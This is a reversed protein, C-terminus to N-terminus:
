VDGLSSSGGSSPLEVPTGRASTKPRALRGGLMSFGPGGPSLKAPPRHDSTPKQTYIHPTRLPLPEYRLPAVVHPKPRPEEPPELVPALPELSATPRPPPEPAITIARPAEPTTVPKSRTLGARHVRGMVAGRTMGLRRAIEFGSQGEQWLRAIESIEVSPAPLKMPEVAAPRPVLALDYGLAAAWRRLQPLSVGRHGTEAGTVMAANFARSRAGKPGPPVADTLAAPSLGRDLRAARLERLLPDLDPLPAYNVSPHRRVGLISAHLQLTEWTRGPLAAVIEARSAAPWLRRLTAFEAETWLNLHATSSPRVRRPHGRLLKYTVGVKLSLRAAITEASLDDEIRLRLAEAALAPDVPKFAGLNVSRCPERHTPPLGCRCRGRKLFGRYTQACSMTVCAATSAARLTAGAALADVLALRQPEPLRM